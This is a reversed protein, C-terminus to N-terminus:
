NVGTYRHFGTLVGGFWFAVVMVGGGFRWRWFAVVPSSHLVFLYRHKNQIKNILVSEFDM